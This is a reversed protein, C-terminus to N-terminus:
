EVSQPTDTEAVRDMDMMCNRALTTIMGGWCITEELTTRLCRELERRKITITEPQSAHDYASPCSLGTPVFRGDPGPPPPFQPFSALM